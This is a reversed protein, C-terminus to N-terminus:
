LPKAEHTQFVLLTGGSVSFAEGLAANLTGEWWRRLPRERIPYELGSVTVPVDPTLSFISVQQRAFSPLTRSGCVPTFVGQDTLMALGLAPYDEAYEALLSINGLTHDERRGTAGVIACRTTGPDFHRVVYRMAKTLDNCEQDAVAIWRDGLSAREAAPLSDGDGIVVFRGRTLASPRDGMHRRFDLFASDCCVVFDAERLAALPVPHTPFDGAALIAIQQNKEM